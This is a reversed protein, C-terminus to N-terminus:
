AIRLAPGNVPGKEAKMGFLFRLVRFRRILLEYIAVILVLASPKHDLIEAHHGAEM